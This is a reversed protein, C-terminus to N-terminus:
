PSAGPPRPAPTAAPRAPPSATAQPRGARTYACAITFSGSLFSSNGKPSTVMMQRVDLVAGKSQIAYLFRTLAELSGEWNCNIAVEYLEGAAREREPERRTLVLGNDAATTEVLKLLDATVDRDAPYRPLARLQEDLRTEVEARRRVLRESVQRRQRLNEMQRSIEGWRAMRSGGMWWTLAGLGIALTGIALVSERMSLRM